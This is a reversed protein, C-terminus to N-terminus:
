RAGPSVADVGRGAAVPWLSRTVVGERLPPRRMVGPVDQKYRSLLSTRKTTDGIYRPIFRLAGAGLRSAQSPAAVPRRSRPSPQRIALSERGALTEAPCRRRPLPPPRPTPTTAADRRALCAVRLSAATEWRGVRPLVGRGSTTEGPLFSAPRLGGDM